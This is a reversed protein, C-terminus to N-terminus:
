THPSEIWKKINAVLEESRLKTLESLVFPVIGSNEVSDNLFPTAKMNFYHTRFRYTVPKPKNRTREGGERLTDAGYHQVFGHREMRVAIKRLYQKKNGDQATGYTQYRALAEADKVSKQGNRRAHGAFGSTRVRLEAALMAAAQTGIQKETIPM